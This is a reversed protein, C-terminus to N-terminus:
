LGSDIQLKKINSVITEIRDSFEALPKMVMGLSVLSKEQVLNSNETKPNINSLNKARQISKKFQTIQRDITRLERGAEKEARSLPGNSQSSILKALRVELESQKEQIDDFKDSLSEAKDRVQGKLVEVKELEQKQKERNKHILAIENILAERVAIGRSLHEKRIRSTIRAVHEIQDDISLNPSANLSIRETKKELLQKLKNTIPQTSTKSKKEIKSTILQSPLSLLPILIGNGSSISCCLVPGDFTISNPVRGSQVTVGNIKSDTPCTLLNEVTCHQDTINEGKELDSLWSLSVCVLSSPSFIFYRMACTKDNLIRIEEYFDLEVKEIIFAEDELWLIHCAM